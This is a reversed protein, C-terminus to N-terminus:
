SAGGRTLLFYARWYSDFGTKLQIFQIESESKELIARLQASPYRVRRSAQFFGAFKGRLWAWGAGHRLALLGWLGQAVLIPWGYRLILSAPYHKAVLYIQNRSIRRVTHPHWRGLTASGHHWALAAPVYWGELGALAGRLGLDVDEMYSEFSEDFRGVRRFFEARYLAATGPPFFTRRRVSFEAGDPRGSGIRWACGGRSLADCTGDLRERDAAQLIKGTAFWADDDQLANALHALWDPATEIDNNVVALWETRSEAIGLNVAVAFGANVRMRIARAGAQEAAEASGDTSGNDIVLIEAIPHTQARLTRLLAQLLARGNWVPVVITIPQCTM